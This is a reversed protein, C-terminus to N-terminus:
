RPLRVELRPRAGHDLADGLSRVALGRGTWSELATRLLAPKDVDAVIGDNEEVAGDSEDARGDHALVIDGAGAAEIKGRRAADDVDKWDWTTASWLVPVLGLRRMRAALVPSSAGYPPRVWRVPTGTIEVLEARARELRRAAEDAALRTLRTHDDGHLAIEHGGEVIRRVLDPHRRARGLLVFFTATCGFEALVDLLAPTVEPDPGDDFTLVITDPSNLAVISAVPRGLLGVARHAARTAPVVPPWAPRGSATVLKSGDRAYERYSLGAAAAGFGLGRAALRAGRAEAEADRRARGFGVRAVGAAIRAAGEAALRARMVPVFSAGDRRLAAAGNGHSFARLLVWSRSAREAPVPEYVHAESCFVIRGGATTLATTFATDEGGTLGRGTDFRLGRVLDSRLDLLLGAAPATPVGTGTPLDRRVFFRGAVLWPDIGEPYAPLVVGTVAQAGTDRWTRVLAALWGADPTEDDDIFVLLDANERVAIDLLRNRVAAVGPAPELEQVVRLTSTGLRRGTDTVVAAASGQPDNDVVAVVVESAAGSGVLEEGQAALAALLTPLTDVRRYTPVAILLRPAPATTSTM